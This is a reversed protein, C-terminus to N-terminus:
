DIDLVETKQGKGCKLNSCVSVEDGPFGQLYEPGDASYNRNQVNRKM